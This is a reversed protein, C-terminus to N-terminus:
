SREVRDSKFPYPIRRFVVIGGHRMRNEEQATVRDVARRFYIVEAGIIMRYEQATREADREFRVPVLDFRTLRVELRADAAEAAAM